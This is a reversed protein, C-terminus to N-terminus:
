PERRALVMVIKERLLAPGHDALYSLTKRQAPSLLPLQPVLEWLAEDVRAAPGTTLVQLLTAALVPHVVGGRACAHAAEWRVAPEPDDLLPLLNGRLADIRDYAEGLLRVAALRRAPEVSALAEALEHDSLRVRRVISQVTWANAGAQLLILDYRRGPTPLRRPLAFVDPPPQAAGPHRLTADVPKGDDTRLRLLCEHASASEVSVVVASVRRRVARDMDTGCCNGCPLWNFPLAAPSPSPAPVPPPPTPPPVQVRPPTIAPPAGAAAGHLSAAARAATAILLGLVMATRM